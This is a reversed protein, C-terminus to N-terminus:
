RSAPDQIEEREIQGDIATPAVNQELTELDRGQPNTM